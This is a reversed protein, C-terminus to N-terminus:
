FRPMMIHQPLSTPLPQKGNSCHGRSGHEERRRLVKRPTKACFLQVTCDISRKPQVMENASNVDGNSASDTNESSSESKVNRTAVLSSAMSQTAHSNEHDTSMSKGALKAPLSHTPRVKLPRKLEGDSFPTPLKDPLEPFFLSAELSKM